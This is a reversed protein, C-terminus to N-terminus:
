HASQQLYALAEKGVKHLLFSRKAESGMLWEVKWNREEGKTERGDRIGHVATNLVVELGPGLPEATAAEKKFASLLLGRELSKGDRAEGLASPPLPRLPTGM